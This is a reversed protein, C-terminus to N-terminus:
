EARIACEIQLSEIEDKIPTPLKVYESGRDLRVSTGRFHEDAHATAMAEPGVRLSRIRGSWRRGGPLDRLNAYERPGNIYDAAGAFHPADWVQIFCGDPSPMTMGQQRPQRGACAAILLLGLIPYWSRM